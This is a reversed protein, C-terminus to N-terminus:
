RDRPFIILVVGEKNNYLVVIDNMWGGMSAAIVVARIVRSAINMDIILRRMQTAINIAWLRWCAPCVILYM